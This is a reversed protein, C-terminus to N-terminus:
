LDISCCVCTWELGHDQADSQKQQHMVEPALNGRAAVCGGRHGRMRVYTCVVLRDVTQSTTREAENKRQATLHGKLRTM